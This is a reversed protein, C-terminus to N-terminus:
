WRSAGSSGTPELRRRDPYEDRVLAKVAKSPVALNLNQARGLLSGIQLTAVGIVKGRMDIVPGGSNGPSVPASIQVMRRGKLLRRASVLGNTLTHELGLPNGICVVQEGVTVAESDGIPLPVLRAKTKVRLLALDVEENAVLLETEDVWTGDFLKVGVAKAGRIVHHNTAVTGQTDIFFGTGGGAGKESITAITVVSPAAKRFLEVPTLEQPGKAGESPADRGADRQPRSVKTETSADPQASGAEAQKTMGADVYGPDADLQTTEEEPEEEGGAPVGRAGALWYTVHALPELGASAFRDGEALLLGRTVPAAGIFALAFGLWVLALVETPLGKRSKKDKGRFFKIGIVVSLALVLGAAPVLRVWINSSLAGFLSMLALVSLSLGVALALAKVIVNVVSFGGGNGKGKKKREEVSAMLGM